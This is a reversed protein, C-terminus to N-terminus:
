GVFREVYRILGEISDLPATIHTLMRIKDMSPMVTNNYVAVGTVITTGSKYGTKRHNIRFGTDTIMAILDNHLHGFDRGSSFTLDDIYRTYTIDHQKCFQSIRNDIDTFVINTIYSSTPAGQPVARKSTTLRTIMRAVNPICGWQCLASYVMKNTVSPYFNRIDTYFHFKKGKHRTANMIHDRKPIGGYAAPSYTFKKLIRSNLRLQLEKLYGTSPRLIREEVKGKKIRPTEDPNLKPTRNDYYFTEANEAIEQMHEWSVGM